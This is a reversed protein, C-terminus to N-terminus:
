YVKGDRTTLTQPQPLRSRTEQQEFLSREWYLKCWNDLWNTESSYEGGIARDPRRRCNRGSAGKWSEEIGTRFNRTPKERQRQLCRAPECM